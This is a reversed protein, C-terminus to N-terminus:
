RVSLPQLRHVALSDIHLHQRDIREPVALIAVSRSLDDFNLVLFQRLKTCRPGLPKGGESGQCQLIGIERHLLEFRCDLFLVKAPGRDATVHQPLIKGIRFEMGDPGLRFFEVRHGAWQDATLLYAAPDCYRRSGLVFVDGSRLGDRLGLLVCLEWYHRYSTDDGSKAAKDLYEAFRVPVFGAPAGQPVKRGGLRNLEKLIGVAEMLEATGPGGQFDIAALVNPTFQRLYSYSTHMASLRGHDRPLPRWGGSAAERLRQMGITNRLLAGLADSSGRRSRMEMWHGFLVFTVLMAAADYSTEVQPAFLTAFVSFLYAVLVGLSVLVNMDLTRNRLARVAGAHFTWGCWWVVPTTLILLVWNAHVGFPTPLRLHFLTIGLSSYLIIPITLVLAVFFRNRMDVEMERAMTPDSMDHKGGMSKMDPVTADKDHMHRRMEEVGSVRGTTRQENQVARPEGCAFGCDKVLDQVQAINLKTDDYSITATQTVYSANVVSIAELGRLRKEIEQACGAFNLGKVPLTVTKM